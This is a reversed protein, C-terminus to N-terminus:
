EPQSAQLKQATDAKTNDVESQQADVIQQAQQQRAQNLEEQAVLMDEDLGFIIAHKRVIQDANFNQM